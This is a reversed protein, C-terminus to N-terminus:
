GSDKNLIVVRCVWGEELLGDHCKGQDIGWCCVMWLLVLIWIRMAVWGVRVMSGHKGGVAEPLM